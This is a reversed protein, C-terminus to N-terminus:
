RDIQRDSVSLCVQSAVQVTADKHKQEFSYAKIM